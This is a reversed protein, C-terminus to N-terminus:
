ITVEQGLDPIDVHDFGIKNLHGKYAIQTQEEGHVLFVKSVTNQQNSLFHSMEKQDGHASFSDMIEIKANVKKVEGFMKIFEAGSRLIGGPTEPSCYGVFLITNHPDEVNNFVHHKIRGANVMGSSSIIICPEKSFNLKKSELVDHIYYLHNFGFPDPDKIMYQHLDFDFCESHSRFVETANVALPSDVYVPIKPLRKENVLQDLIYVLEQTRGLSFAPIIVKGQNDICTSQIIEMFHNKEAPKELHLKDGYTSETIIFDSPLMFHPDNLIPRDPRGIDGSFAFRLDDGQTKIRLNVSASGLIHGADTFILHVGPSIEILRDYSMGVFLTMANAVDKASYLPERHQGKYKPNKRKKEALRKNYFEVDREQIHAADMLMISVLDRTAHTCFIDGKFGDKVLKPIRGCHDIHAHSLIMLDIEKPDFLWDNNLQDINDVRGQFLGCDLLIRLGNELKLLHCSGTVEKAAGCFKIKM